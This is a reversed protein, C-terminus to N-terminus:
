CHGLTIPMAELLAQIAQTQLPSMMKMGLRCIAFSAKQSTLLSARLEGVGLECAARHPGSALLAQGWNEARGSPKCPVRPQLRM